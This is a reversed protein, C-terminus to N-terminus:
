GLSLFEGGSAEPLSGAAGTCAAMSCGVTVRFTVLWSRDGTESRSPCCSDVTSFVPWIFGLEGSTILFGRTV